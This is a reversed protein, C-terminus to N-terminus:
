EPQAVLLACSHSKLAMSYHGEQVGLDERAWADRLRLRLPHGVAGSGRVFCNPMTANVASFAVHITQPQRARNLLMLACSGADHISRAWVEWEAGKDQEIRTGPQGLVDQHVRLVEPALYVSLEDQGISRVDTGIFIPAALVAMMSLQARYEDLTQAGGVQLYDFSSWGGGQPAPGAFRNVEDTV